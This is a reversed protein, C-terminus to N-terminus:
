LKPESSQNDGFLTSLLRLAYAAQEENMTEVLKHLLEKTETM